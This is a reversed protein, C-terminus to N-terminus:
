KYITGCREDLSPDITVEVQRNNFVLDGVNYYSEAEWFLGMENMLPEVLKQIMLGLEHKTDDNPEQLYAQRAEEFPAFQMEGETAEKLIEEKIIKQLLEKTIKM